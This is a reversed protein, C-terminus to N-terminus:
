AHSVMPTIELVYCMGTPSDDYPLEVYGMRKCYRGYAKHRAMDDGYVYVHHVTDTTNAIYQVKREYTRVARMIWALYTYGTGTRRGSLSYNAKQTGVCFDLVAQKSAGVAACVHHERVDDETCTDVGMGVWMNDIHSMAVRMSRDFSAFKISM